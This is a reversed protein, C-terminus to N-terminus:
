ITDDSGTHVRVYVLAFRSGTHSPKVSVIHQNGDTGVKLEVADSSVDDGCSVPKAMNDKSDYNVHGGNWGGHRDDRRDPRHDRASASGALGGFVVAATLIVGVTAAQTWRRKTTIDSMRTM